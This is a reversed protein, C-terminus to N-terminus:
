HHVMGDRIVPSTATCMVPAGACVARSLMSETPNVIHHVHIKFFFVYSGGEEQDATKKEKRCSVKQQQAVQVISCSRKAVGDRAILHLASHVNSQSANCHMM